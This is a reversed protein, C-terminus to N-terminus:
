RQAIEDSRDNDLVVVPKTELSKNEIIDEVNAKARAEDIDSQLIEINLRVEDKQRRIEEIEASKTGIATTIGIQLAIFLGFLIINIIILNKNITAMGTNKKKM